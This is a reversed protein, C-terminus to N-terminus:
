AQELLRLLASSDVPKVLHDDFGAEESRIRDDDQGWGTLAIIGIDKGWPQERIRRCVTYGDMGPMGIDLLIVEPRYRAAAEIAEPGDHATEVQHGSLELLLTMSDVIDRNDDVVLVRRGSVPETTKGEDPELGPPTATMTLAPLRVIFESGKGRGESRAEITGGHLEM